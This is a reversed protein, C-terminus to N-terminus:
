NYVFCGLFMNKLMVNSKLTTCSLLVCNSIQFHLIINKLAVFCNLHSDKVCVLVNDFM